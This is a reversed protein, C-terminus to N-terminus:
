VQLSSNITKACEVLIDTIKKREKVVKANKEENLKIKELLAENEKEAGMAKAELLSMQEKVNDFEEELEKFRIEKERFETLVEEQTKAKETLM